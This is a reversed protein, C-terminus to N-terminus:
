YYNTAIAYSYLVDDSTGWKGDPGANTYVLEKTWFNSNKSDNFEHKAFEFISDDATFWEGDPGPGDYMKITDWCWFLSMTKNSYTMDYYSACHIQPTRNCMGGFVNYYGSGPFSEELKPIVDDSTFWLGDDGPLSYKVRRTVNTIKDFTDWYYGNTGNTTVTINTTNDNTNIVIEEQITSLIAYNYDYSSYKEFNACKEIYKKDGLTYDYIYSWFDDDTLFINDEGKDGRWEGTGAQPFGDIWYSIIVDAPNYTIEVNYSKGKLTANTYYIVYHNPTGNAEYYIEKRLKPFSSNSSGGGGSDSGPSVSCGAVLIAVLTFFLTKAIKKKM